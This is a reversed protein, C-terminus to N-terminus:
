LESGFAQRIEKETLGSLEVLKKLNCDRMTQNQTWFFRQERHFVNLREENIQDRNKYEYILDQRETLLDTPVRDKLISFLREREQKIKQFNPRTPYAMKKNIVERLLHDLIWL